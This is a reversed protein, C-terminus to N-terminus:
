AYVTGKRRQIHLHENSQNPHEIWGWFHITGIGGGVSEPQDMPNGADALEVLTERLITRKRDDSFGQTRVDFAEGLAHPDMADHEKDACTVILNVHLRRATADLAGLLRVGAKALHGIPLVGDKFTVGYM